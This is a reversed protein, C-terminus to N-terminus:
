FFFEYSVSLIALIAAAALLLRLSRALMERPHRSIGGSRRRGGGGEVIVRLLMERRRRAEDRAHRQLEPSM